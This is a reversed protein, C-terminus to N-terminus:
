GILPLELYVFLHLLKLHFQLDMGSQWQAAMLTSGTIAIARSKGKTNTSYLVLRFSNGAPLGHAIFFPYETSSMNAYIRNPNASFVELYFIQDLGGSYGPLCEVTLTQDTINTM